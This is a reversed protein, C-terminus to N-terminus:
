TLIDLGFLTLEYALAAFLEVGTDFFFGADFVPKVKFSTTPERDGGEKSVM